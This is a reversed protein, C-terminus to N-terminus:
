FAFLNPPVQTVRVSLATIPDWNGNSFIQVGAILSPNQIKLYVAAYVTLDSVDALLNDPAVLVANAQATYVIPVSTNVAAYKVTNGTAALMSNQGPNAVIVNKLFCTTSMVATQNPSLKSIVEVYFYNNDIEPPFEIQVFKDTTKSVLVTCNITNGTNPVLAQPITASIAFNNNSWFGMVNGLGLESYLQARSLKVQYTVWLEGVIVTPTFIGAVNIGETAIQFLGLDTFVKDKTSNGTRTYLMNSYRQTNKCEVGHLMHESPKSVIAYDYNEMAVSNAFAPADPDYETALIVKGLANSGTTGFEGSTPRYEFCLSQFEYLTFNQAIQSLWPFTDQFAANISYTQCDFVSSGTGGAPVPATVNAVFERHTIIVDGSQGHHTNIMLPKIGSQKVLQNEILDHGGLVYDGRGRIKGSGLKSRSKSRTTKRKKTPASRSRSRKTKKSYRGSYSRVPMKPIPEGAPPSHRKPPPETTRTVKTDPTRAGRLSKVRPKTLVEKFSSILYKAAATGVDAALRPGHIAAQEALYDM